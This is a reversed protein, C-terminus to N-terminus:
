LTTLKELQTNTLKTKWIIASSIGDELQSAGALNQGLNVVSCTPITANTDTGIQIGNVYFVIDNNKYALALKYTGTNTLTSTDISCQLTGSNFIRARLVNSSAGSFAMYIRNNATGDSIHFIYRSATGILKSVKIEAYMTGETQGILSSIGTKSCSDALRTATASTTPIYSTPYSSAEIQAGWLYLNGTSTRNDFSWHVNTQGSTYAQTISCRYWGNGVNEIKATGTTDSVISGNTLDFRATSGFYFVERLSFLNTTGKKAYASITYSTNQNNTSYTIFYNNANTYEIKDANITGDPSTINNATVTVNIKDWAANDFQESYLAINTSQKELLLSPCGSNYTATRTVATSTTPIYSSLAGTELQAGWAWITNANCQIAMGVSGTGGSFVKTYEIRQWTNPTLTFSQGSEAGGWEYLFLQITIATEAYVYVSCTFTNNLAQITSNSGSNYYVKSGDSLSPSTSNVTGVFKDAVLTGNPSIRDNVTLTTNNAVWVSNNFQESYKVLNTSQREILTPSYTLRPVNLRDTTPFYPKATSGINLQAGWIYATGASTVSITNDAESFGIQFYGTGNLTDVLTCRYWGNGADTITATYGAYVYGLTGNNLNFWARATSGALDLFYIWNKTGKKAYVSITYQGNLSITKYLGSYNSTSINVRDADLNGIPSTTNNATVTAGNAATWATFDESYSVLNWPTGEVLSQPNIRTADCGRVFDLDGAGNSPIISYVKDEKYGSPIFVLSADNLLSM